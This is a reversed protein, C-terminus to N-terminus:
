LGCYKQICNVIHQSNNANLITEHNADLLHCTIKGKNFHSWGNSPDNISKYDDFLDRAKFLLMDQNLKTPTHSLLLNMRAWALQVLAPPLDPHYNHLLEKFHLENRQKASFTAWSDILGLMGVQNNEKKLLGAVEYLLSGGFSYGLLYYPGKPQISKIAALYAKAMSPITDYLLYGNGISPDQLGYISLSTKFAKTLSDFCYVLGSIPHCVFLNPTDTIHNFTVIIDCPNADNNHSTLLESLEAVTPTQYLQNVVLSQQFFRNIKDILKLAKLSHGGLDFFNDHIGINEIGLNEQWLQVLQKETDNRPAHYDSNINLDVRSAKIDPLGSTENSESILKAYSAIDFNSIALNAYNTQIAQLFMRQGQEPSIDNGREFLNLDNPRKTEIAMGIDQWTNWNLSVVFDASFHHSVAFADLCSNAACYDIQGEEGTLAAISSMLVVFDLRSEKFAKALYFAGHIKPRLVAEAMDRTKLQVLGGGAIGACHILGNIPGYQTKCKSIIESLAAFDSVDANYFHLSAGQKQLATLIKIKHHLKNTPDALVNDWAAELIMPTRSIFILTPNDVQEAILQSIALGIGGIGGTILYIGNDKLRTYVKASSAVSHSLNWQYGNRYASVTDEDPWSETAASNLLHIFCDESSSETPDIDILRCIISPHEQTIVRSAGVLSANIPDIIETGLVRQTGQTIIGLRLPTHEGIIEIYSQTIYLLSYFGHTLQTNIQEESLMELTMEHCSAMHFIVPNILENKISKFFKLYDDKSNPNVKFKSFDVSEYNTDLEVIFLKAKYKQLLAIYPHSIGDKDQFVIWTHEHIKDLTPINKHLYAPQHSWVPKYLSPFNSINDRFENPEVWYRQKQFSYTPLAVRPLLKNNHLHHWDINIGEQWLRGIANLLEKLDETERHHNPLTQIIPQNVDNTILTKLFTGLSRGPGVEIFLSHKNLILSEFSKNLLVTHRLHRYWYDPDIAEEANLWEGTVNSVIPIVPPMLTINAFIEKFPKEVVEMLSSHFAHSVKLRQFPIGAQLLYRELAAIAEPNGSAVCQKMANHVALEIGSNKKQITRFEDTSCEIALMAGAPATSMLLGRECVLAIADEYSFVGALCAAVYEGLSHGILAQPKIGFKILLQALAYEIIFLAPQAYQTQNLREDDPNNIVKQLDCNLHLEAIKIGKKVWESFLPFEQMLQAAMQHYQMGQGPFMFVINHPVGESSHYLKSQTFSKTIEDVTRGVAIRRYPFDERGTQLTYAVKPLYSLLNEKSSALFSLLKNKNEELATPTKASLVLLQQSTSKITEDKTLHEGLIIHANTGGVGFSSVGAYRKSSDTKKWETLKTNIFFPSNNLAINPNAKEFNLMAPIKQHYLSLAVKILGAMGASVDTHGINGKVSSLACFQIKDTQERYVTNLVDFEIADGLTTATGHAEVFSVQDARIKAKALAERICATQGSTSPATFGLKDAGDNNIGRGKIIAYITDKDAIADKLRKLIVVGVGNSFVTGNAKEDFPRCKGDSSEISGQTYIYGDEEPVIISVAGAIAIDSQGSVLDHCAEDVTVLGTSCATNINLSRGRLNLRYSVQTSLMGSSSAIRNHFRDHEKCFWNNKLLNEHLYTSDAMGAFMSITKSNLKAPAVGAHELAEWTCELFVRQQPDTISADIPNFGFFNADFKDIDTLIGRVPVFNKDWIKNPNKLKEPSFRTLCDKGEALNQWYEDLSNANPFRCAMGIIAIDQSTVAKIEKVVPAEIDGDLYRSLKHITPYTIINSVQLESHLAENIRYCAETILLSNAGLEFLNKNVDITNRNLLGQWITTIKEEIISSPLTDVHVSLDMHNIQDLKSKDVKGVSTLPLDDVLVYKAPLMYIPLKHSLYERIDDAHITKDSSSLVIYATLMQHSGGGIEVRVAALSILPHQMLQNEIENLHIRFGGIKVQDDFRGLFLIDGSPLLRVRDGTKYMRKFPSDVSSFPNSVFKENNQTSNHYNIALNAGSIYLEGETAPNKNEDLIHVQVNDIPKGISALREDEVVWQDDIIQRCTFTTAETPGYGNILVVPLQKHKRYDSLKKLLSANVQEGGFIIVEVDNLTDMASKILQHFFGTPLFLYKVSGYHLFNKLSTHDTRIIYPVIVLTAGNLLASWIEFTSGDFALNSFQAVREKENVQAFNDVKVLNVVSQHSILVGKPKGTSGSTYMMYIPSKSSLRNKNDLRPNSVSELYINKILRADYSDQNVRSIYQENTVVLTPKADNLLEELRLQPAMSDLPLYVAEAKIIALICVIYDIGPELLIGVFEGPQVNKKQLWYAFQNAKENLAQYTLTTGDEDLAIHHPTKKVQAEFLEAVTFDYATNTNIM